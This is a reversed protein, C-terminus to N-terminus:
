DETSSFSFFCCRFRLGAGVIEVQFTEDCFFAVVSEFEFVVFEVIVM